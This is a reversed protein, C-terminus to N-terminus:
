DPWTISPLETLFEGVSPQPRQGAQVKAMEAYAFIWVADRWAIFVASQDAWLTVTSGTYSALTVGDNFQMSRATADVLSQIAQQYVELTPAPPVISALFASEEEASMEFEIGDVIKRM